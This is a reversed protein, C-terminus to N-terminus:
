VPYSCRAPMVSLTTSGTFEIDRVSDFDEDIPESAQLPLQIGSSGGIMDGDGTVLWVRVTPSCSGFVRAFEYLEDTNDAMQFALDYTADGIFATKRGFEVPSGNSISLSGKLYGDGGLVRIAQSDDALLLERAALEALWTAPTGDCPDEAFAEYGVIVKDIGGRKIAPCGTSAPLIPLAVDPCVACTVLDAM